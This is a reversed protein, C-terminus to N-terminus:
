LALELRRTNIAPQFRQRRILMAKDSYKLKQHKWRFKHHVCFAKREKKTKKKKNGRKGKGQGGEMPFSVTQMSSRRRCIAQHQATRSQEQRREIIWTWWKGVNPAKTTTTTTTSVFFRCMRHHGWYPVMPWSELKRYGGPPPWALWTNSLSCRRRQILIFLYSYLNARKLWLTADKNKWTANSKHESQTKM